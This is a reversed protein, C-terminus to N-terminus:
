PCIRFGPSKEQKPKIPDSDFHRTKSVRMPRYLASRSKPQQQFGAPIRDPATVFTLCDFIDKM